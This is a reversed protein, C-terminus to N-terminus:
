FPTWGPHGGVERGRGPRTNVGESPIVYPSDSHTTIRITPKKRKKCDWEIKVKIAGKSMLSDRIGSPPRTWGGEQDMGHRYEPWATVSSPGPSRRKGSLRIEEGYLLYQATVDIYGKTCCTKDFEMAVLASYLMAWRVDIWVPKSGPEVAYIEMMKGGPAAAPTSEDYRSRSAFTAHETGSAIIKGKECCEVHWKAYRRQLFTAYGGDLGGKSRMKQLVKEEGEDPFLAISMYAGSFCGHEGPRWLPPGVPEITFLGLPDVYLLPNSLCGEYLSMGDVYELPDQTLWRGTYYNYYRNRNYQLVLDNSDLFDVRRGTFLYPNGLASSDGSTEDGDFWNGDGGDGTYITPNGYADYEYREHITGGLTLLVAPSHLHDHTLFEDRFRKRSRNAASGMPSRQRRFLNEGYLYYAQSGKEGGAKGMFEESLRTAFCTGPPTGAYETSDSDIMFLVEDITNGYAFKRRINNSGDYEALVRWNHDYYYLTTESAVPITYKRLSHPRKATRSPLFDLNSLPSNIRSSASAHLTESM